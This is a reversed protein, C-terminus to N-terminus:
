TARVVGINDTRGTFPYAIIAHVYRFNPMDSILGQLPRARLEKRPEYAALSQLHSTPCSTSSSSNMNYHALLIRTTYGRYYLSIPSHYGGSSGSCNFDLPDPDISNSWGEIWRSPLSLRSPSLKTSRSRM